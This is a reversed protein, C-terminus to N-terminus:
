PNVIYEEVFRWLPPFYEQNNIPSYAITYRNKKGSHLPLALLGAKIKKRESKAFYSLVKDYIMQPSFDAREVDEAVINPRYYNLVTTQEYRMDGVIAPVYIFIRGRSQFM